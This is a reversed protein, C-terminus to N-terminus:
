PTLNFKDGSMEPSRCIRAENISHFIIEFYKSNIIEYVIVMAYYSLRECPFPVTFYVPM